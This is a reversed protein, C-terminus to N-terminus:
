CETEKRERRVIKVPGDPAYMMAYHNIEKEAQEKDSSEVAAVTIGDQMLSYRYLIYTM